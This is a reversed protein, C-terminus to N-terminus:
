STLLSDHCLTREQDRCRAAENDKRRCCVPARRVVAGPVEDEHRLSSGAIGTVAKSDIHGVSNDRM